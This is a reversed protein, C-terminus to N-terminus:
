PRKGKRRLADAHLLEDRFLDTKGALKYIAAIKDHGDPDHGLDYVLISGGITAVRPYDDLWDYLGRKPLWVGQKVMRSVAVLDPDPHYGVSERYASMPLTYLWGPLFRFRIGFRSPDDNGFYALSCGEHGNKRLWSALGPLDQGWDVNSDSLIRSGGEAGGAPENFYSLFHPYAALVAIVQWALLAGVVRRGWTGIARAAALGGLIALFPFLPLVYRLGINIRSVFMFFLLVALPPFLFWAGDRRRRERLVIGAGVAALLLFPVPTKVLLAVPYYLTWGGKKIEGFFFSRFGENATRQHEVGIGFPRPFIGLYLPGANVGDHLYLPLYGAHLIAVALAFIIVTRVFRRRSMGSAIIAAAPLLGFLILASYKSLLALGFALGALLLNRAGGEDVARRFRLVAFFFTATLPLDPTALSGHALLNPDCASLVLAGLGAGDGFSRRAERWVLLLLLLTLVIGPIRALILGRRVPFARCFERGREDQHDAEFVSEPIERGFFLLTNLYYPLPPHLRAGPVDWDGTELLRKGIGIYKAEDVTLSHRAASGIMLLASLLLLLLPVGHRAKSRM